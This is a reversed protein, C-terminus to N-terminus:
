LHWKIRDREKRTYQKNEPLIIRRASGAFDVYGIKFLLLSINGFVVFYTILISLSVSSHFMQPAYLVLTQRTGRSRHKANERKAHPTKGGMPQAAKLLV